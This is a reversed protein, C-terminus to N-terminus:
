LYSTEGELAADDFLEIFPSFAPNMNALWLILMEELVILRHSVGATEGELYSECEAEGRYVAVAPFEGAFRRLAGDVEPKGLKGYLWDLAQQMLLPNKEARYLAVIYHLIEDILGMANIQGAQIAQGPSNILDRKENMRQAFLRAAHFNLFIVNGSFSFLSEEFEYRDRAKRSIHFEM